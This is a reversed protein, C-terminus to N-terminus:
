THIYIKTFIYIYAYIYIYVYIYIINHVICIHTYIHMYTYTYLYTYIYIFTNNICMSMYSSSKVFCARLCVSWFLSFCFFLQFWVMQVLGCSCLSVPPFPFLASPALDFQVVLSWLAWPPEFVCFVFYRLHGHTVVITCICIYIYLYINYIYICM